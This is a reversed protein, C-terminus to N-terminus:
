APPHTIRWCYHIKTSRLFDPPISSATLDEVEWAARVEPDLEFKRRNTSFYMVGGRPNLRAMALAILSGHDVQIDFDAQGKSNSFSPPDLMIVDYMRQDEELWARVDARV